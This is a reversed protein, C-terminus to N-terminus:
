NFKDLYNLKNDQRVRGIALSKEPVDKTVTTGAAVKSNSEINIPAVLNSNSGVFVNDGIITKHKNVGDYNVTIVGCGINTNRGVETDGVYTLHSVKTGDGLKANKLEVFDGVKVSNGVDSNPRLYAFPGVNTDDGIVSDKCVSQEITTNNGVTMNVLTSNAGIVCDEGIVTNGYIQTNPLIITDQGIVVDKGIYTNNSDVIIVGNTMLKTNIANQMSKTAEFLQVKSNIGTFQYSDEFCICEVRKHEHLAIEITSPLYYEGQSNNNDIKNLTDKLVKGDFLYVGTNIEKVKTLNEKENICDKQEVIEIIDGKSDRNIRGYGFPESIITSAVSIANKNNNHTDVLQQLMESKLLPTDGCLVLVNCDDDIYDEAMMVAHGTGKQETQMAFVTNKYEKLNEKVEDAKYGVIVCNKDPNLNSTSEVVYQILTKEFISHLVKHNKSKMRTGTGAALIITILKKM